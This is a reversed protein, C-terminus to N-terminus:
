GLRRHILAQRFLYFQDRWNIKQFEIVKLWRGYWHAFASWKRQTLYFLALRNIEYRPHTFYKHYEIPLFAQMKYVLEIADLAIKETNRTNTANNSHVRYRVGVFDNYGFNGNLGHYIHLLWDYQFYNRFFLPIQSNFKSRFVMASNCIPIIQEFYSHLNFIMPPKNAEMFRIRSPQDQGFIEVNSFVLVCTEHNELFDFQRQLYNDCAFIDDSDLYAVYKTNPQTIVFHQNAAMGLNKIQKVVSINPYRVKYAMCIEHTTDTSCDDSVLINFDFSTIQRVVSELTDGIYKEANYAPIVVTLKPDNQM